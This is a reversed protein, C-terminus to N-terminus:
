LQGNSVQTNKRFNQVLTKVRERVKKFATFSAGQLKDIAEFTLKLPNIQRGNKLVEYHLHPGTARGTAGVFGLVQGQLIKKGKRLGKAFRCLHAYATSYIRNHKIGVYNGYSGRKGVYTVVGDGAAMIPTGRPVAFDVGKHMKSFGLIPHKRMGFRGSLRAGDVPTKLLKKRISEGKENFYGLKGDSSNFRYIQLIRGRVCLTAYLLNGPRTRGSSEDKYQTYLIGYSDGKRISRQFDVDYSFLMIFDHITRAPVGQKRANLYLSDDIKGEVWYTSQVLKIKEKATKYEGSDDRTVVIEEDFSARIKLEILDYSMSSPGSRLRVLYVDDSPKMQHPNYMKKLSKIVHHIQRQPIAYKALIKALTDGRRIEVKLKEREEVFSESLGAGTCPADSCECDEKQCCVKESFTRVDRLGQRYDLVSIFIAAGLCLVSVFIKLVNSTM